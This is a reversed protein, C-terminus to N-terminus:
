APRDRVLVTFPMDGVGDERVTWGLEVYYSRRAAAASLYLRPYGLAFGAACAREVLARGIGRSRAAPETWVAAVWPTYDPREDFDSAILSATGLFADGEHAVLAIPIGPGALTERLRTEIYERAVGHRKWWAQWIRDAVADFFEPRERLDSIAVSV